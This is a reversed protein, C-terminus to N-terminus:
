RLDELYSKQKILYKFILNTLFPNKLIIKMFILRLDKKLSYFIKIDYKKIEGLLEKYLDKNELILYAFINKIFFRKLMKTRWRALVKKEFINKRMCFNYPGEIYGVNDMIDKIKKSKSENKKHKRWVGVVSGMFGVNKNLMLRLVSEWDSSLINKQYYGISMAYRRNYLTSLHPISYGKFYNLFLHNGKMAEPLKDNMRDEIFKKKKEIFVKQKAFIMVLNNKQIQKVAKSIFSSDTLYDDGDLVLAYDGSAYEYLSKHYNGVRGLNENNRFYKFKKNKSFKKVVFKTKDKSNDDSLIIEINPYDQALASEIAKSVYKEQNYTPIIISILPFDNEKM